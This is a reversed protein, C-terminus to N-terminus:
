PRLEDGSALEDVRDSGDNLRASARSDRATSLDRRSLSRQGAQFPQDSLVIERDLLRSGGGSWRNADPEGALLNRGGSTPPM